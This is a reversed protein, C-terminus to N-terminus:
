DHSFNLELMIGHPDRAFILTRKLAAVETVVPEIGLKRLRALVEDKGSCNLAVHDIPGTPGPACDRKVLHIIAHGSHDYLWLVQEPPLPAPGNRSDLDLLEAYFRASSAIDTTSINVHDLSNVRM